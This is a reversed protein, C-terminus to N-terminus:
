LLVIKLKASLSPFTKAQEQTYGKWQNPRYCNGKEIPTLIVSKDMILKSNISRVTNEFISSIDTVVSISQQLESLLAMGQRKQRLEHGLGSIAYENKLCAGTLEKVQRKLYNIENKLSAINTDEGTM